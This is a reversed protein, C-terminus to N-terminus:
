AFLHKKKEKKKILSTKKESKRIDDERTRMKTWYIKWELHKRAAAAPAHKKRKGTDFRL